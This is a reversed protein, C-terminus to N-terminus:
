NEFPCNNDCADGDACFEHDWIEDNAYFAKKDEAQVQENIRQGDIVKAIEHKGM